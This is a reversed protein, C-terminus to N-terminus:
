VGPPKGRGGYGVFPTTEKGTWTLKFKNSNSKLFFLDGVCEALVLCHCVHSGLDDESPVTKHATEHPLVTLM